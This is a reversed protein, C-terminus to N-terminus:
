NEKKRNKSKMVIRSVVIIKQLCYKQIGWDLERLLQPFHGGEYVKSAPALREFPSKELDWKKGTRLPVDVQPM